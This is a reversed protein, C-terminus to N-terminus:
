ATMDVDILILLKVVQDHVGLSVFVTLQSLKRTAISQCHKTLYKAIMLSSTLPKSSPPQFQRGLPSTFCRNFFTITPYCLNDIM